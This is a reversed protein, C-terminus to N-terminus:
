LEPPMLVENLIRPRDSLVNTKAPPLTHIDDEKGGYPLDIRFIKLRLHPHPLESLSIFALRSGAM